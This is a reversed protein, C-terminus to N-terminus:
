SYYCTLPLFRSSALIGNNGSKSSPKAAVIGPDALPFASGNGSISADEEERAFDFRSRQARPAIQPQWHFDAPISPVAFKPQTQQVTHLPHIQAKAAAVMGSTAADDSNDKLLLDVFGMATNDVWPDFEIDHPESSKTQTSTTTPITSTSAPLSASLKAWPDVATTPPNWGPPPPVDSSRNLGYSWVSATESFSLIGNTGESSLANALGNPVTEDSSSASDDSGSSIIANAPNASEIKFGPPPGIPKSHGLGTSTPMDMAAPASSSEFAVEKKSKKKLKSETKVEQKTSEAKAEKVEM